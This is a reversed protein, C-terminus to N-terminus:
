HLTAIIEKALQDLPAIVHALGAEIAVKPMGYVVSTAEDQAINVAGSAKAVELGLKGDTGMGTMVVCTTKSGYERAVSRFLYDVSPRCNNEPPADTIRIIKAYGVGSAVQMQRGGPAVYVVNPQVPEGDTAEKVTLKCKSDLSKALSATFLPPMHQVLFIPVGIDAPLEPLMQGLAYPGGTSVGIAVALSRENRSSARYTNSAQPGKAARAASPLWGLPAGRGKRNLIQLREHYIRLKKRLEKTLIERNVEPSIDDPKTIFDFAGLELAQMTIASGQLTKASLLLCDVDLKNQQIEQLVALGDMVPMQVDLTLLDPKLLHIRSMAIEGNIATGVVEVFPFTELIDSVIKRYFITDDVVLV